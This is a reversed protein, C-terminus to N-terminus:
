PGPEQAHCETKHHHVSTYIKMFFGRMCSSSIQGKVRLGQNLGPSRTRVCLVGEWPLSSKHWNEDFKRWAHFLYALSLSQLPQAGASSVTKRIYQGTKEFVINFKVIYERNKTWCIVLDNNPLIQFVIPQLKKLNIFLKKLCSLLFMSHICLTFLCFNAHLLM